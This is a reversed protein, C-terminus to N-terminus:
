DFWDPVAPGATGDELLWRGDGTDRFGAREFLDRAPGNRETPVVTGTFPGAGEAAIVESLVALELGFGMARCSMVVSDFDRTRRDFIAVAVVGLDGFRDGLTAVHLGTKDDALLEDVEAASRRRTTTNFQNTRQVLELLRERDDATAARVRYRLKLGRMMTPYDHTQQMSARREAAERYMQTRRKAEPTQTTSPFEFWRRLARRTQRAAPDLARVGPVHETVLAREVPNDDLLVFSSPALDLEAVAASVNDPKPLWNIKHLVFDDPQLIMEDWRVTSEDNKSLAVLLVGADRLSRLRRQLELDHGVAGDGMVGTWLTNDFDVFLGKARGLLRHDEVVGAYEDAVLSGMRTTHFYGPPVDDPDFLPGGVHRPGGAEGVMAAEDLLVTNVTSDVLDGIGARLRQLFRKQGWSHQPLLSVQRRWRGVPVGAPAHVVVTADSVTRIDDVAQRVMEVLGDVAGLASRAGAPTAAARWAATYPPVGDFTFLSLGIVDPACRKVENVVAENVADLQQRTSFFVHEVDIPGPGDDWASLLARTEVFLCDGIFLVKAAAPEMSVLDEHLRMLSRCAEDADVRDSVLGAIRAVEGPLRTSFLDARQERDLGPPLYRTREDLYVARHESSGALGGVLVRGLPRLYRERCDRDSGRATSGFTPGDSDMREWLAILQDLRESLARSLPEHVGEIGGGM